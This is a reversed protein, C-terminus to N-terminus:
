RCWGPKHPEPLTTTCYWEQEEPDYELLIQQEVNGTAPPMWISIGCLGQEFEGFVVRNVGQTAYSEPAGFGEDGNAPCAARELGEQAMLAEAVQTKWGGAMAVIGATHARSVYQQYAPIAIAALIGLVAVGIVLAIGVFFAILCGGPTRQQLEPRDTYAWKDVVSTGAVFDHLARKEQTFAAMLFGIYLTLYSLSAAFWRGLAHPFTLRAGNRDVVKISLAMKGLTAQAASSEMLSFYLGAGVYYLLTMGLYAAVVWGPPDESDLGELAQFGGGIGVVLILIFLLAYFGASLILQDLFLAAWRRLFGAPVVDHAAPSPHLSPNSDTWQGSM